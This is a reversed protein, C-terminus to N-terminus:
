CQEIQKRPPQSQCTHKTAWKVEEERTDAVLVEEGGKEGRRNRVKEKASDSSV